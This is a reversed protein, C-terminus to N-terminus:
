FIYGFVVKAFFPTGPTFHLEEVPKTESKLRTETAFQAENWQTNLLNEIVFGIKYHTTKYNATFDVVNYGKAIVTNSENAPRDKIYRYRLGIEMGKKFKATLGGVSTLTPALPIYYNSALQTGFLTDILRGKSSNIDLDAVLWSL